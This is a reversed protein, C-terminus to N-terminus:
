GIMRISLCHENHQAVLMAPHSVPYRTKRKHSLACKQVLLLIVTGATKKENGTVRVWGREALRALAQNVAGVGPSAKNVDSKLGVGLLDLV